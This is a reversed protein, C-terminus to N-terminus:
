EIREFHNELWRIHNDDSSASLIDYDLDSDLDASFLSISRSTGYATTTGIRYGGLNEHFRIKFHGRSGSIVDIDGDLDIDVPITIYQGGPNNYLVRPTFSKSGSNEYVRVQDRDGVLIDMTGNRDFDVCHVSLVGLARSDVTQESFGQMGNNEYWRVSRANLSGSVIDIDSDGDLDVASVSIPYDGLSCVIHTDFAYFNKNEHWRISNDRVSTSVVDLDGDKDIDNVVICEAGDARDFIVHEMFMQTGNNEYWRIADDSYSSAVIDMDGDKDFDVALVSSPGDATCALNHVPFDTTGNNEHWRIADNHFSASVIDVDGDRDMDAAFVSKAGRDQSYVVLPAFLGVAVQARDVHSRGDDDIVRVACTYTGPEIPADFSALGSTTRVILSDGMLWEYMEIKGDDQATAQLHIRSGIVVATDASAIVFPARDTVSIVVVDTDQLSDDDTVRLSCALFGTPDPPAIIFTDPGSCEFWVNNGFSWEYKLIEGNDSASGQLHITDNVSVSVDTGANAFPPMTEVNISFASSATLGDDDTVRLSCTFATQSTNPVIVFTDASSTETWIQNGLKWEWKKIIGNDSVVATLYVTDAISVTTDGQTRITPPMTLVQINVFDYSVMGDDDTVQLSCVFSPSAISPCVVFTDGTASESWSNHGFKWRWREITGNDIVHARLYVTDNVSVSTDPHATPIPPLSHIQISTSDIWKSGAGDENIAYVWERGTDPFAWSLTDFGLRGSPEVINTQVINDPFGIAWSISHITRNPNSASVIISVSDSISLPFVSSDAIWFNFESKVLLPPYATESTIGHTEGTKVSNNRIAVRYKFRYTNTDTLSHLGTRKDVNYITDFFSTDLTSGYIQSSYSLSSMPDRFIVYDLVDSYESPAWSLRIIGKGTDYCSEVNRVVYIGNFPLRITDPFISDVSTKIPMDFFVPSYEELNTELRLRYTGDALGSFTFMGGEDVNCYEIDSGLIQVVVSRIKDMDNPELAVYASFSGTAQLTDDTVLHGSSAILVSKQFAKVSDREMFVNYMSDPLSPVKFQGNADTTLLRIGSRGTVKPQGVPQYRDSPIIKVVANRAPTVGDPMYVAVYEENQTEGGSVPNGSELCSLLMSALVTLAGCGGILRRMMHGTEKTTATKM